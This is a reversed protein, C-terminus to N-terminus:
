KTMNKQRPAEGFQKKYARYFTSASEFGVDFALQLVNADPGEAQLQRVEMVRLRNLYSNFSEGTYASFLTSLYGRSYGFKKATSEITLHERFSEHLYAFIETILAKPKLSTSEAPLLPLFSLLYYINSILRLQNFEWPNELWSKAHTLAESPLSFHAPVRQKDTYEYFAHLYEQAIVFIAFRSNEKEKYYHVDFAGSFAADGTKLEYHVGNIYADAAGELVIVLEVSRHFHARKALSIGCKLYLHDQQDAQIEYTSM